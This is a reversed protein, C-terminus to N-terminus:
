TGPSARFSSRRAFPAPGSGRTAIEFENPNPPWLATRQRAAHAREDDVLGGRGQGRDLAELREAVRLAEGRDAGGHAGRPEAVAGTGAVADDGARAPDATPGHEAVRLVRGEHAAREAGRVGVRDDAHELEGALGADGHDAEDLRAAGPELLAVGREGPVPADEARADLEGRLTGCTVTTPPTAAPPAAYEGASVSKMTMVSDARM